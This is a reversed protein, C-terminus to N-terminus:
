ATTVSDSTHQTNVVTFTLVDNILQSLLRVIAHTFSTIALPLAAIRGSDLYQKYPIVTIINATITTGTLTRNRHHSHLRGVVIDRAQRLPDSHLRM